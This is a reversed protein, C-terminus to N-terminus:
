QVDSPAGEPSVTCDTTPMADTGLKTSRVTIFDKPYYALIPATYVAILGLSESGGFFLECLAQCAYIAILALLVIQINVVPQFVQAIYDSDKGDRHDKSEELIGARPFTRFRSIFSALVIPWYNVVAGRVDTLMKLGHAETLPMWEAMMGYLVSHIFLFLFLFICSIFITFGWSSPMGKRKAAINTTAFLAIIWIFGILLSSCWLGWILDKPQSQDRWVFSIM